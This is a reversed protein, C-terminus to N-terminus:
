QEELQIGSNFLENAAKYYFNSSNSSKKRKYYRYGFFLAICIIIILIFKGFTFGEGKKKQFLLQQNMM